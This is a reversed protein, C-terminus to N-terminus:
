APDKHYVRQFASPRRNSGAGSWGIPNGADARRGASVCSAFCHLHRLCWGRDELDGCFGWLRGTAHGAAGALRSHCLRLRGAEGSAPSGADLGTGGGPAVPFDDFEVQPDGHIRGPVLAAPPPCDATQCSSPSRCCRSDTESSLSAAFSSFTLCRSAVAVDFMVRGPASRIAQYRLGSRSGTSPRHDRLCASEWRSHWHNAAGTMLATVQWSMALLWVCFITL